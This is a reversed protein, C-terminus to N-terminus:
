FDATLTVMERQYQAKTQQIKSKKSPVKSSSNHKASKNKPHISNQSNSFNAKLLFTKTNLGTLWNTLSEKSLTTLAAASKEWCCLWSICNSVDEWKLSVKNPCYISGQTRVTNNKCPYKNANIFAFPKVIVDLECPQVHYQNWLFSCYSKYILYDYVYKWIYFRIKGYIGEAYFHPKWIQDFTSIKSYLYKSM